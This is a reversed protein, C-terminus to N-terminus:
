ATNEFMAVNMNYKELGELTAKVFPLMGKPGTTRDKLHVTTAESTAFIYKIIELRKDIDLGAGIFIHEITKDQKKLNTFTQKVDDINTGTYCTIDPNNITTEVNKINFSKRGLILIAKKAM